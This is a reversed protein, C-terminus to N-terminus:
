HKTWQEGQISWVTISVVYVQHIQLAELRKSLSTPDLKKATSSEWELGALRHKTMDRVETGDNTKM